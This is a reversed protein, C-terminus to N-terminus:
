ILINIGLTKLFTLMIFLISSVAIISDFRDLVGGHGPFVKGFDKIGYRRKILSMSLDGVQSVVAIILGLCALVAYKWFESGKNLVIYGFSVFAIICFLTGGISGAITKKPSIEECLKRKGFFKGTFYAFVDTVWAGIFVLLYTYNSVLRLFLISSFGFIIYISTMYCLSIEEITFDKNFIIAILFLYIAYIIIVACVLPLMTEFNNAIKGIIPIAAGTLYTPLTLSYKSKCGICSFMEYLAIVTM